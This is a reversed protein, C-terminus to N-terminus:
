WWPRNRSPRLASLETDDPQRTPNEMTSLSSAHITGSLTPTSLVSRSQTQSQLPNPISRERLSSGNVVVPATPDTPRPTRSSAAQGRRENMGNLQANTGSMVPRPQLRHQPPPPASGAVSTQAGWSGGERPRTIDQSAPADSASRSHMAGVGAFRAEAPVPGSRRQRTRRQDQHTAADDPPPRRERNRDARHFLEQLETETIPGAALRSILEDSLGAPLPLGRMRMMNIFTTASGYSHRPEAQLKARCYPCSDSEDLWKRICHDGFIHRCPPLRLPAENIGEPSEVGYDNYCIVCAKENEPLSSIEVSELSQVAARSAVLKSSMTGRFMQIQRAVMDDSVRPHPRPLLPTPMEGSPDQGAEDQSRSLGPGSQRSSMSRRSRSYAQRRRDSAPSALSTFDRVEFFAVSSRPRQTRQSSTPPVQTSHHPSIPSLPYSLTTSSSSAGAPEPINAPRESSPFLPSTTPLSDLIVGPSAWDAAVPPQLTLGRTSFYNTNGLESESISSHPTANMVSNIGPVSNMVGSMPQLNSTWYTSAAPLGVVSDPNQLARLSRDPHPLASHQGIQTAQAPGPNTSAQQFTHQHFYLPGLPLSQAHWPSMPSTHPHVM